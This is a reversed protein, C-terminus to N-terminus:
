LSGLAKTEFFVNLFLRAMRPLQQLARAWIPSVFAPQMPKGVPHSFGNARCTATLSLAILTVGIIARVLSIVVVSTLM